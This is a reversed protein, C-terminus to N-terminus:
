DPVLTCDDTPKLRRKQKGGAKSTTRNKSEVSRADITLQKQLVLCCNM